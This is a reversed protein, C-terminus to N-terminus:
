SSTCEIQKHVGPGAPRVSGLGSFLGGDSCLVRVGGASAAVWEKRAINDKENEKEEGASDYLRGPRKVIMLYGAPGFYGPECVRASQVVASEEKALKRAWLPKEKAAIKRNTSLLTNSGSFLQHRVRMPGCPSTFNPPHMHREPIPTLSNPLVWSCAGNSDRPSLLIAPQPSTPSHSLFMMDNM